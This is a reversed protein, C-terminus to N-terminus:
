DWRRSCMAPSYSASTCAAGNSIALNERMAMMLAESDVEPFSLNVVHTQTKAPDGNIRHEVAALEALLKGKVRSAAERRGRYERGAIRRAPFDNGPISALPLSLGFRTPAV